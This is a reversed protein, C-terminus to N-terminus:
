PSLFPRDRWSFPPFAVSSAWANSSLCIGPSTRRFFTPLPAVKGARAPPFPQPPRRDLSPRPKAEAPRRRYRGGQGAALGRRTDGRPLPRGGPGGLHGPQPPPNVPATMARAQAEPGALGGGAGGGQGTLYHGPEGLRHRGVGATCPAAGGRRIRRRGRGPCEPASGGGGRGGTM